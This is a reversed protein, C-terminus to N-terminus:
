SFSIIFNISFSKLLHKKHFFISFKRILNRNMTFNKQYLFTKLGKKKALMVQFTTPKIQHVYKEFSSLEKFSLFFIMYKLNIFM